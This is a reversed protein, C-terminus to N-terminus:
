AHPNGEPPASLPGEISDVVRKRAAEDMAALEEPTKDLLGLMEQFTPLHSEMGERQMEELASECNRSLTDLSDRMEKCFAWGLSQRKILAALLKAKSAQPSRQRVERDIYRNIADAISKERLHATAESSATGIFHGFLFMKFCNMNVKVIRFKEDTKVELPVKALDGLLHQVGQERFSQVCAQGFGEISLDTNLFKAVCKQMREDSLRSYDPEGAGATDSTPSAVTGAQTREKGAESADGEKRQPSVASGCYQCGECISCKGHKCHWTDSDCIPCHDFCARIPAILSDGCACEFYASPVSRTVLNNLDWLYLVYVGSEGTPETVCNKEVWQHVHPSPNGIQEAAM